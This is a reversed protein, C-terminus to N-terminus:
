IIQKINYIKLEVKAGLFDIYFWNYFPRVTQQIALKGFYFFVV